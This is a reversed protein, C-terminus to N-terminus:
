RSAGVRAASSPRASAVMPAIARAAIKVLSKFV